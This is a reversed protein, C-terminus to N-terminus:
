LLSYLPLFSIGSNRALGPAVTPAKKKAPEKGPIAIAHRNAPYVGSKKFGSVINERKM